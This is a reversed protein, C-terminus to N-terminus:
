RRRSSRLTTSAIGQHEAPLFGVRSIKGSGGIIGCDRAAYSTSRPMYPLDSSRQEQTRETM